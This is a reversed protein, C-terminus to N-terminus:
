DKLYKAQIINGEIDMRIIRSKKGKYIHFRYITTPWRPSEIKEKLPSIHWISYKSRSIANLILMPLEKIKTRTEYWYGYLDYISRCDNGDDDLYEVEYYNPNEYAYVVISRNGYWDNYWGSSYDNQCYTIHT